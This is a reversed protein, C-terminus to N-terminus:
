PHNPRQPPLTSQLLEVQLRKTAIDVGARISVLENEYDSIRRFVDNGIASDLGVNAAVLRDLTDLLRRLEAWREAQARIPNPRMRQAM